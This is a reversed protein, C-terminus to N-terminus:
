SGDAVRPARMMAKLAPQTLRGVYHAALRGDNVEMLNKALEPKWEPLMIARTFEYAPTVAGVALAAVLTVEAKPLNRISWRMESVAYACALSLLMLAPISARMALDNNPGFYYFPLILLFIGISPLLYGKSLRRLLLWYVGFEMMVFTTYRFAAEGWLYPLDRMWAFTWASSIKKGDMTIYMTLVAFVALSLLISFYNFRAWSLRKKMLNWFVYPIFPLFGLTILPSWLPTAVLVIPVTALFIPNLRHKFLLATLIWAALAHNPVWFLQTTNSSYQFFVAWWEMHEPVPPVGTGLILVGLVDMGSFFVVILIVVIAQKLTRTKSVAIMLFLFVGLLTWIFLAADAFQLGVIKGILAAPLYYAIPCRLILDAGGMVGYRVPWDYVVLDRLVADRVPWDSNAYFFHGAGGFVTWIIAFVGVCVVLSAHVRSTCTSTQSRPLVFYVAVLLMSVLLFGYLPRFWGWFFIFVPLLIYGIALKDITDLEQGNSESYMQSSGLNIIGM